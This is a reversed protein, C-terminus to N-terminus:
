PAPRLRPPLPRHAPRRSRGHGSRGLAADRRLGAVTGSQSGGIARRDAGRGARGLSAVMLTDDGGGWSTESHSAVARAAVVSSLRRAPLEAGALMLGRSAHGRLLPQYLRAYGDTGQPHPALSVKERSRADRATM